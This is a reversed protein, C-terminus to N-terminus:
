KSLRLEDVTFELGQGADGGVAHLQILQVKCDKPVSFREESVQRITHTSSVWLSNFAGNRNCKLEWYSESFEEAEVISRRTTLKYAGAALSLYRQLVIGREGANAFIRIKLDSGSGDAEFIAGSGASSNPTWSILGYRPDTTSKSFPVRTPLDSQGEAIQGLLRRAVEPENQEMLGGLLNPGLKDMLQRDRGAEAAVILKAIPRLDASKRRMAFDLFEPIWEAQQRVYPALASRIADITIAQSLIPFLLSYSEDKTRLVKDYHRLALEHDSAQVAQEILFFQTLMDRRSVRESLHALSSAKEPSGSLEAHLALMRLASPTLPERELADRAVDLIAPQAALKPSRRTEREMIVLSALPDGTMQEVLAPNRSRLVTSTASWGAMGALGLCAVALGILGFIRKPTLKRRNNARFERRKM